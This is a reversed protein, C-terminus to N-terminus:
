MGVEEFELLMELVARRYFAHDMGCRKYNCAKWKLFNHYTKGPIRPSVRKRAQGVSHGDQLLSLFEAVVGGPRSVELIHKTVKEEGERTDKEVQFELLLHALAYLRENESETARLPDDRFAQSTAKPLVEQVFAEMTKNPCGRKCMDRFEAILPISKYTKLTSDLQGHSWLMARLIFKVEGGKSLDTPTRGLNDKVDFNQVHFSLSIVFEGLDLLAAVHLPTQGLENRITALTPKKSLEYEFEMFNEQCILEFFRTENGTPQLFREQDILNLLEPDMDIPKGMHIVEKGEGGVYEFFQDQILIVTGARLLCCIAWIVSKEGGCRQFYTPIGDMIDDMTFTTGPKMREIYHKVRFVQKYM